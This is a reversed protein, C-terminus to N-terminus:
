IDFCIHNDIMEDVIAVDRASRILATLDQQLDMARNESVKSLIFLILCFSANLNTQNRAKVRYQTHPIKKIGTPQNYDFLVGSHSCINRINILALIHNQLVKIDRIGYADSIKQKVTDEKLNRFVSFVQGFTFFELTKWAPAYIDNIYKAHHDRIPINKTKFTKNYITPLRQIFLDNVVKPDNFWTPSQPYHNSVHYVVQTRFHVEIRYLYKGLLNRLDVDFYYLKIIDELTVGRRLNHQADTEFYHWYFGLRYYGIDLLCEKAKEADEIFMGRDRLLEIQRDVNTAQRGM